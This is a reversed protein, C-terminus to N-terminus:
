FKLRVEGINEQILGKLELGSLAIIATSTDFGSARILEDRSMPTKLIELIKQESPTCNARARRFKEEKAETSEAPPSLGLAYVIDESNRILAAGLRLLMHPGDSKSSFISGPVTFVDRNYETALRATILTGSRLEAEIVLVAHSLGAMIRNRQPFSYPAAHFNNEFESILAGGSDLIRRAVARNAPPYLNNWALGSGPVAVTTLGAALAAQHAICDIGLALGSIIVIDQGSLGSILRQCADRGYRSARRSGVVCLFKKSGIDAGTGASDATDASEEPWRGRIFLRRPPDPIERLLAPLENKGLIEIANKM